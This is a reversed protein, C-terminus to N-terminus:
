TASDASRASAPAPPGSPRGEPSWTPMLKRKLKLFRKEFLEYSAAALLFTVATLAIAYVIAQMPTPHPAFHHILAMGLFVHLPLHFIYMGYSYRGLLRLPTTSLLRMTSAIVGTTPLATLLIVLAFGLSLLTYGVTQTRNGFIALGHTGVLTAILTVAAVIAIGPTLRQARASATPIRLLAAAAAGATLADMRCITFMYLTEHPLHALLLALRTLLALGISGACVWLLTIPRCRVVIFPWLLYFQEEVALSWFHSFGDVGGGFPQTWNSLFTWLWIQRPATARFEASGLGLAPGVVFALLLVTYYLPLIRLARRGFFARFYNNSHRTDLLNGTILFGSLVFFLQVGVWGANMLLAAPYDVAPIPLTLMNANHPVVLLIALARVGDLAPIHRSVEAATTPDAAPTM